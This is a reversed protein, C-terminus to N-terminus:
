VTADIDIDISQAAEPTGEGVGNSGAAPKESYSVQVMAARLLKSGLRFGRRFERLVTGDPVDDNEERMIAEHLEPDFPAGVGPVAEVGLGRFSEVMQKYLGQYAAELKREGETEAKLSSRASEFSDVLPVLALVVDGKTKDAIAQKEAATRKRFNDFDANLRLFQARAVELGEEATALQAEVVARQEALSAFQAEAENVFEATADEDLTCDELMARANRILVEHPAGEDVLADEESSESTSTEASNDAEVARCVPRRREQVRRGEDRLSPM